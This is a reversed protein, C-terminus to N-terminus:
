MQVKSKLKSTHFHIMLLIKGENRLEDIFRGKGWKLMKLSVCATSASCFFASQMKKLFALFLSGGLCSLVHESIKCM